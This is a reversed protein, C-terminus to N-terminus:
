ITLRNRGKNKSNYLNMDAITIIKEYKDTNPIKSIAGISITFKIKLSNYEFLNNEVNNRLNELAIEFNSPNKSLYYVVFEEGGYRFIKDNERNFHNKIIKGLERLCYDGALHGYTDNINKFYDIDFIAFNIYLKERYALKYDKKFIENFFYRNYLSTLEDTISIDRLKKNLVELKVNQEEIKQTRELVLDEMNLIYKKLELGMINFKSALNIIEYQSFKNIEIPTFNKFTNYNSILNTIENIPTIIKNSIKRSIYFIIIISIFLFIFFQIFSNLITNYLYLKNNYINFFINNFKIPKSIFYKKISNESIEELRNNSL